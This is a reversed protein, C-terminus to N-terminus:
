PRIGGVDGALSFSVGVENGIRESTFFDVRGKHVPGRGRFRSLAYTRRRTLGDWLASRSAESAYVATLSGSGAGRGGPFADGPEEHYGPAGKRGDHSDSGGTSSLRYGEGLGRSSVWYSPKHFHEHYNEDDDHNEVTGFATTGITAEQNSSQAQYSWENEDHDFQFSGEKDRRQIKLKFRAPPNELRKKERHHSNAPNM